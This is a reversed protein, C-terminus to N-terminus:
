PQCSGSAVTARMQRAPQMMREAKRSLIAAAKSTSGTEGLMTRSGSSPPRRAFAQGGHAAHDGAGDRLAAGDGASAGRAQGGEVGEGLLARRRVEDLGFPVDEAGVTELPQVTRAGMVAGPRRHDALADERGPRPGGAAAPRRAPSAPGAPSATPDSAARPHHRRRRPRVSRTSAGALRDLFARLAKEPDTEDPESLVSIAGAASCVTEQMPDRVPMFVYSPPREEAHGSAQWSRWLKHLLLRVNTDSVSYGVFLVTRAFADARAERRAARRLGAARLLRERGAGAVWRRRLRRPVEVIQTTAEPALSMDRPNAVKVFPRGHM